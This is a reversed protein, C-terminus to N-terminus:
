EAKGVNLIKREFEEVPLPRSFYYGQVLDCGANKLLKLQNEEEVGEAIVPVKLYGAIDVILEVLRLDKEDREINRIFGIDMKLVDVPISSLMNLSSYGSGFDDMEIRYGRERLASIVQILQEANDTYASETVELTLDQRTLGNKIIIADLTNTLDPDFVDVRSLNVSVPLSVGYNKRWLAIQRAVEAWVFRDVASIQGNREFLPIFDGPSIMGLEPHRWRVLAEASYLQPRDPRIDFKPQYYVELEHDALARELDNELRQHYKERERLDESYVKLRTKYDGRVASSASWACALMQDLSLDKQWPMIGMRLHIDTSGTHRNIHEQFRDLLAYYDEPHPCLLDFHDSGERGAIGGTEFAYAKLEDALVRLLGDCYDRGKLTNLTHFREINLAIADMQVGPQEQRRRNGYVLFFSRNYIGTLPDRETASIIAKGEAVKAEARMSRLALLLIIVAIVAISAVVAALNDRIYQGFTVRESTFAYSTLSSNLTEEPLLRTVKNLISFLCDDARNVAFSMDMVEGTSLATLKYRNLHESVRNIRYSSVLTCDANGDAVAKFCAPVSDCGQIKWHPFHDKLFTEHSPHGNLVAVTRDQEPSLGQQDATRVVAYMGTSVVPDTLIVGLEEGDYSSLNVPFVCDVEGDTLARLADGTTPYAVTEFSLQANKECTEAFTLYDSLAGALQQTDEDYICFPLFGDRYGVRITSHDALWAKEANSLFSNVSGAKNYKEAMQQNFDRNEELIRNMATDLEQKLDPRSKSIGFYSVASGVKCVPVVDASTGYTDLTVLADFDGRDLMEMLVPSKEASEVIEPHVDHSEAWDLFLQEQISNKNVGVRKGNLTSFDDPRIETNDPAIFVHFDESGMAESSYLISQAREETYSVDSLLDIEGAMLKEFLESWSGEM